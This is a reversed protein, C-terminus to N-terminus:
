TEHARHTVEEVEGNVEDEMEEDKEDEQEEQSAQQGVARIYRDTLRAASLLAHGDTTTCKLNDAYLHLTVGHQASLYRCWPVYLAVIFVISLSCGQSFRWRM